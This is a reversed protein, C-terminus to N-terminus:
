KKQFVEIHFGSPAHMSLVKAKGFIPSDYEVPPSVIHSGFAKANEYIKGIDVTELTWSGLGRNPIRPPVGPNIMESENFDLFLFHNQSTGKAYVLSFRFPTGEPVGLASGPSAQWNWDARIELDLVETLFALFHDSKEIVQASYGPGGLESIHDCPSVPEMGKERQIGVCHLFDPGKYITEYYNYSSGDPRQIDGIQMPAMSTVGLDGLRKDLKKQNLNPFGLSFPGLELSSYSQHIAPIKEKFVLLRINVLSPVEKRYLHYFDYSLNGPIDYIKRQTARQNDSLAIPGDIQLGMGQVYFRNIDDLSNTCLTATHLNGSLGKTQDKAALPNKMKDNQKENNTSNIETCSM